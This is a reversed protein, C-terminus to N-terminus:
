AGLQSSTSPTFQNLVTGRDMWRGGVGVGEGLGVGGGGGRGSFFLLLFFFCNRKIKLNPNKTFFFDYTPLNFTLTM